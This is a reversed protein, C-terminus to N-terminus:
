SFKAAGTYPWSCDEIIGALSLQRRGPLNSDPDAKDMKTKISRIWLIIYAEARPSQSM